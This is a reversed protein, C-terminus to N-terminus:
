SKLNKEKEKAHLALILEDRESFKSSVSSIDDYLYERKSEEGSKNSKSEDSKSSIGVHSNYSGISM